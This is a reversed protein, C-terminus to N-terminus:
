EVTELGRATVKYTTDLNGDENLSFDMELFGAEIAELIAEDLADLEAYFIDPAYQKARQMDVDYMVGDTTDIPVYVGLEVLRELTVM